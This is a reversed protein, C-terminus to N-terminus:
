PIREECLRLSTNAFFGQHHVTAVAFSGKRDGYRLECPGDLVVPLSPSGGHVGILEVLEGVELVVLLGRGGIASAAV